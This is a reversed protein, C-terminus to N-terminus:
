GKGGGGAAAAAGAGQLVPQPSPPQPSPPQAKNEQQTKLAGLIDIIHNWFASGGSTLLGVIVYGLSGLDTLFPATSVIQTKAAIAAGIGFAIAILRVVAGRLEDKKKAAAKDADSANAPAVIPTGLVPVLGKLTEVAREVGLSLAAMLMAFQTVNIAQITQQTIQM